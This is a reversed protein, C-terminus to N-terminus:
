ATAHNSSGVCPLFQSQGALDPLGFGREAATQLQILNFLTFSYEAKRQLDSIWFSKNRSICLFILATALSCSGSNFNNVFHAM